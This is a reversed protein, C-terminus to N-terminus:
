IREELEKLAAAHATSDVERQLIREAGAIAIESVQRRLLERAQMVQQEIDNQASQKIHESEEHAKNKADEEIVRARKEAHSIIEAAKGRAREEFEVARDKADGLDKRAQEASALSDAVQQRRQEMAATLPGWLYRNVLWILLVFATIQALLTATINM